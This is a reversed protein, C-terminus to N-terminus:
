ADPPYAPRYACARVHAAIDAPRPVRALDHDFIYEAIKAATNLSADLINTTPPYILGSDLNAQTVQTAVAHAAIIFMAETVRKAETALVAMGMAPFIYVNNGQGPVLTRGAFQVPPFPSQRQRVRRARGVM